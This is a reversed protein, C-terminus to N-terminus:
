LGERVRIGVRAAINRRLIMRYKCVCEDDAQGLAVDEAGDGEIAGALRGRATQREGELAQRRRRSARM